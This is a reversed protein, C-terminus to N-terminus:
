TKHSQAARFERLSEVIFYRAEEDTIRSAGYRGDGYPQEKYFGGSEEDVTVPDVSPDTALALFWSGYKARFYWRFGDCSGWAQGGSLQEIECWAPLEDDSLTLV